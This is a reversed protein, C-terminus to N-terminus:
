RPMFTTRFLLVQCPITTADENQLSLPIAPGSVTNDTVTAHTEPAHITVMANVLPIPPLRYHLEFVFINRVEGNYAINRRKRAHNVHNARRTSAKVDRDCCLTFNSGM